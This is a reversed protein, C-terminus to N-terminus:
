RLFLVKEKMEGPKTQEWKAFTTGEAVEFIFHHGKAVFNVLVLGRWFNLFTVLDNLTDFLKYTIVEKLEELEKFADNTEQTTISLEKRKETLFFLM